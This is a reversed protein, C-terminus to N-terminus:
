EVAFLTWGRVQNGVQFIVGRREYVYYDGQRGAVVAAPAGYAARIKEVEDGVAVGAASRGRYGSRTSLFSFTSYGAEVVLATWTEGIRRYIDIAPQARSVRPVAAVETPQDLVPRYDAASLGDIQEPESSPANESVAAVVGGEGVSVGALGALNIRALEPANVLAAEFDDRAGEPDSPEGSYRAMGRVLLAHGLSGSEGQRRALKVAKGALFAAEEPDGQLNAVGALNVLAPIYAPDQRRAREFWDRAEQLLRTRHQQSWAADYEDAKGGVQLRSAADLEFPYAFRVQVAKVLALAGLARAVGANNLIERSPFDRALHAFCRGAEEHRGILLLAQGAEFVPVMGGLQERARDALALREDLAPYGTIEPDLNYEAYISQLVPGVAALANYGAVHSFFGGFYDAQSEIEVQAAPDGHREALVQGVELDALGNGFDGAWTHDKYFHALEHGLLFALADLSDAGQAICLDFTREELSVVHNDADYWAVQIRSHARRPLLRLQPPPRGDGIARVLDDYVQRATAYKPHDPSLGEQASVEAALLGFFALLLGPFFTFRM